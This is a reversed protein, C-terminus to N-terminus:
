ASTSTLASFFEVTTKGIGISKSLGNRSFNFGSSVDYPKQNEDRIGGIKTRWRPATSRTGICMGNRYFGSRTGTDTKGKVPILILNSIPQFRISQM